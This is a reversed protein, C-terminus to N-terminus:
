DTVPAALIRRWDYQTRWNFLQEFKRSSFPTDHMGWAATHEMDRYPSDAILADTAQAKHANAAALNFVEAGVYDSEIWTRCASAVDRADIYSWLCDAGLEPTEVFRRLKARGEPTDYIIRSLRFGAIAMGCWRQYSVALQELMIKCAGYLNPPALPSHETVPLTKHATMDGYVEISSAWAIRKVGCDQAAQFVNFGATAIQRYAEAASLHDIGPPSGFHVVAHAGAFADHVGASDTLDLEVAQADAAAPSQTDVAVVDCGQSRLHAVITRGTNGQAGTVVIRGMEYEQGDDAGFYEISKINL